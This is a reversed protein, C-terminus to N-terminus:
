WPIQASVPEVTVTDAVLSKLSKSLFIQKALDNKAVDRAVFRCFGNSLSVPTGIFIERTVSSHRDEERARVWFSAFSPTSVLVM